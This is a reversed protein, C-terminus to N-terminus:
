ARDLARIVVEGPSAGSLFASVAAAFARRRVRLREARRRWREGGHGRACRLLFEAHDPLPVARAPIPAHTKRFLVDTGSDDEDIPMFGAKYAMARLTMGSFTYPRRASFRRGPLRGRLLAAAAPVRLAGAYDGAAIASLM